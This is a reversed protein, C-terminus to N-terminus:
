PSPRRLDNFLQLTLDYIRHLSRVTYRTVCIVPAEHKAMLEDNTMRAEDNM